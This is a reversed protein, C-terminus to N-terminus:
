GVNAIGMLGCDRSELIDPDGAFRGSPAERWGEGAGLMVLENVEM